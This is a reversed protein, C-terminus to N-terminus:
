NATWHGKKLTDLSARHQQEVQPDLPKGPAYRARKWSYGLALLHQRVTQATIQLKFEEELVEALQAATWLRDENLKAVLLAEHVPLVKVPRGSRLADSIGQVGHREFRTLDNHVSQETRAFHTALRPASWGERHLRLLSARLRVKPHVGAGLELAQLEVANEVSIEIQRS